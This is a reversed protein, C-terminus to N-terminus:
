KGICFTSFIRDLLDDTYVAGVVKGLEDLATHLEEAVLESGGNATAVSKATSLASAALRISERCREATSRVGKVCHGIQRHRLIDCLASCLETLGEGTRSSTSVVRGAVSSQLQLQTSAPRVDSKTFVVLDFKTQDALIEEPMSDDASLLNSADICCVRLDARFLRENAMSQAQAEITPKGVTQRYELAFAQSTFDFQEIGATDFLEVHMGDFSIPASLYDRTTGEVPSVLAAPQRPGSASSEVGFRDVLANFLSSKGANPAGVLVVQPKRDATHRSAMQERVRDLSSIACDLREILQGSSIFEIDEDVFDLGAELEALLQLLDDRLHTLPGALGGALQALAAHLEDKARADIVGLVAEAQTLDIRGALFARLTFEGPEAVRAGAGCLAAVVAELIPQSGFTHLEVVPERTYSRNTPWVYLECPLGSTSAHGELAIQLRSFVIAPQLISPVSASDRGSCCDDVISIAHPGSVRVIGRVGGGPASAIACITDGVYYSM